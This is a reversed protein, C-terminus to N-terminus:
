TQFDQDFNMRFPPVSARRGAWACGGQLRGPHSKAMKGKDSFRNSRNLSLGKAGRRM